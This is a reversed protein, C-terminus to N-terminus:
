ELKENMLVSLLHSLIMHSTFDFTMQKCFLTLMWLWFIYGSIQFDYYPFSQDSYESFGFFIFNSLAVHHIRRQIHVDTVELLLTFADSFTYM